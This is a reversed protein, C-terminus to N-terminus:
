RSPAQLAPRGARINAIVQAVTQDNPNLQQVALMAQLADQTRGLNDWALGLVFIANAYNNQLSVAKELAQAALDYSQATYLVAGLNYWGVPDQASLNAAVAADDIAQAMRNEVVNIQSRLYYAPALNPKLQIAANLESLAGTADGQAIYLQALRLRPLPNTPNEAITKQYAEKAKDYAGEIGVGALNQYLAALSLWNQYDASDISVASLGHEITEQLKSQLAQKAAEDEANILKSLQLLGIEVAARHAVDNNPFIGVARQVLRAPEELDGTAGYAASARQVLIDSNAARLATVPALAFLGTAFVAIVVGIIGAGSGARLPVLAFSRGYADGELAILIGLFVFLLVSLAMGPVYMVHFAFLYIAAGLAGALVGYAHVASGRLIFRWASWVLALAFVLWALLGLVGTTVFTTPIFGVGANFDVNWFDTQNVGVPKFLGWARVFTNPGSGFLIAKPSQLAQQGIAYTGSWSPRVELQVVQLKAPLKTYVAGGWYGAAAFLLAVIIWLIATRKIDSRGHHRAHLFLIAGFAISLAALAYWVDSTNVIVLLLLGALGTAAVVAKWVRDEALHSRWLTLSLFVALGVFIGLDHWSGFISSSAGSLYGGLSLSGPFLVHLIQFIELVLAGALFCKILMSASFQSSSFTLSSAFMITYWMAIVVVTDQIANGSIFSTAGGGNVVASLAYAVPLLAGGWLLANKPIALTGEALRAILWAVLAVLSLLAALIIKAQPVTAWVAPVVFVPTLAVLAYM